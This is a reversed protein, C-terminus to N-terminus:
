KLRRFTFSSDENNNVGNLSIMAVVISLYTASMADSFVHGALISFIMMSVFAIIEATLKNNKIKKLSKAIIYIAIGYTILVGIVGYSFLIDFLDMEINKINKMELASSINIQNYYSGIGFLIKLGSISGLYGKFAAELFKDRGSLFFTILSESEKELFYLQHDIIDKIPKNFIIFVIIIGVLVILGGRYLYKRNINKFEIILKLIFYLPIFMLSTKSGVFFLIAILIISKLINVKNVYKFCKEVQFIFLVIVVINFSNNANFVSKYGAGSASYAREGLGFIIGFLYIFILLNISIDIVKKLSKYTLIEAKSMSVIGLVIIPMLMIKAAEVVDFMIGKIMNHQYFYSGFINISFFLVVGYLLYRNIKNDCLFYLLFYVILVGRFVLGIPSREIELVNIMVGTIADIFLTLSLLYIVLRENYIRRKIQSLNLSFIRERM